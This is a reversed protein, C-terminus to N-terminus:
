IFNNICKKNDNKIIINKLHKLAKNKIRSIKYQPLGIIDSIEKQKLENCEIGFTMKLIKREIDDLEVNLLNKVEDQEEKFIINEITSFDNNSLTDIIKIEDYITDELSLCKKENKKLYRLIENKICIYAYTSFSKNLKDNYTKAANILGIVGVQYFDDYENLNSINMKKIVFHVLGLNGVILDNM